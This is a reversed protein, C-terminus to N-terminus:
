VEKRHIVEPTHGLLTKPKRHVRKRYFEAVNINHGAVYGDSVRGIDAHM